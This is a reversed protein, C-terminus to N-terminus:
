GHGFDADDAEKALDPEREGLDAREQGLAFRSRALFDDDALQGLKGLLLVLEIDSTLEELVPSRAGGAVGQL